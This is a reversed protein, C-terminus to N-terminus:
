RVFASAKWPKEFEAYEKEMFLNFASVGVQSQTSGLRKLRISERGGM